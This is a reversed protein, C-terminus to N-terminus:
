PLSENQIWHELLVDSEVDAHLSKPSMRLLKSIELFTVLVYDVM